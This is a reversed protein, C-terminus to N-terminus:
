RPQAATVPEDEEERFPRVQKAERNAWQFLFMKDKGRLDNLSITDIGNTENGIRPEVLCSRAIGNLLESFAEPHEQMMKTGAEKEDMGQLEPLVEMLTNPLNGSTLLDEIDVDRVVVHLGSPLDLETFQKGWWEALNTRRAKQSQELANVSKNIRPM